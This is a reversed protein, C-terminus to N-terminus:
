IDKKRDKFLQDIVEYRVPKYDNLFFLLLGKSDYIKCIEVYEKVFQAIYQKIVKMKSEM